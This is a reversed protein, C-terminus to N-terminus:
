MSEKYMIVRKNEEYFYESDNKAVRTLCVRYHGGAGIM